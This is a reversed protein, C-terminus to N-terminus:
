WEAFTGIPDYSTFLISKGWIKRYRNLEDNTTKEVETAGNFEIDKVKEFYEDDDTCM